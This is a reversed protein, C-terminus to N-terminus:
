QWWGREHRVLRAVEQRHPLGEPPLSPLVVQWRQLHDPWQHRRAQCRHRRRDNERADASLLAIKVKLHKGDEVRQLTVSDGDVSVIGAKLTTGASSTWNRVDEAGYTGSSVLLISILGRILWRATRFPHAAFRPDADEPENGASESHSWGRGPQSQHQNKKMIPLENSLSGAM